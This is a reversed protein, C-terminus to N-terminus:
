PLRFREASSPKVTFFAKAAVADRWRDTPQSVPFQNDVRGGDLRDLALRAGSAKWATDAAVGEPEGADRGIELFATHNCLGWAM